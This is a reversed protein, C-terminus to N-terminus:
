YAREVKAGPYYFELIDLASKGRLAMAQAGYQCLGCGHGYGRGNYFTVTDGKIKVDCCSSKLKQSQSPADIKQTANGYNAAMRMSEARIVFVQGKDDSLEFRVPRNVNNVHSVRINTILGLRGVSMGNAQGWAAVRRSLTRRDVNIPGWHYTKANVCCTRESKPELPPMTTPANFADIPGQPLGGCTSSFYAPVVKSNWTLVLGATDAVAKISTPNRAVGIYAQSKQDSDVDYHRGPGDNMIRDIAYSRAAVAQALYCAPEWKEYLEKELVGPLYSELRVYNVADFRDFRKNDEANPVPVLRLEGPFPQRDISIASPGLATIVLTARGEPPNITWPGSWQGAIRQLTVPTSVLLKQDIRDAPAIQIKSPGTFTIREGREVIRVRIVPEGAPKPTDNKTIISRSPSVPALGTPASSSSSQPCGQLLAM